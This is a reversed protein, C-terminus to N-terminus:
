APRRAWRIAEEVDVRSIGQEQFREAVRSALEKFDDTPSLPARTVVVRDGEPEFVLYDGTELGLRDRVAKPITVQGKSTLKTGYRAM